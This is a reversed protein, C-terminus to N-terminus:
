FHNKQGTVECVHRIPSMGWGHPEVLGHEGVGTSVNPAIHVTELVACYVPNQANPWGRQECTEKHWGSGLSPFWINLDAYIPPLRQRTLQVEQLPDLKKDWFDIEGRLQIIM